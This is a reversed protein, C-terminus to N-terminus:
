GSGVTVGVFVVLVAAYGATTSMIDKPEADDMFLSLLIGIAVVFFSTTLLATLKTSHLTMILMPAILAAGGFTAMVFRKWARNRKEAKAKQKNDKAKQKDEKEKMAEVLGNWGICMSTQAFELNRPTGYLLRDLVTYISSEEPSLTNESVGYKLRSVLVFHRVAEV